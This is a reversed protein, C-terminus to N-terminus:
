EAEEIDFGRGQEAPEKPLVPHKPAKIIFAERDGRMCASVYQIVDAQTKPQSDAKFALKNQWINGAEFSEVILDLNSEAYKLWVQFQRKTPLDYDPFWEQWVAELAAINERQVELKKLIEQPTM